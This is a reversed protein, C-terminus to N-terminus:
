LDLGLRIKAEQHWLRSPYVVLFFPVDTEWDNFDAKDSESIKSVFEYYEDKTM